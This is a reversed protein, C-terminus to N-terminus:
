LALTEPASTPGHHVTTGCTQSGSDNSTATTSWHRTYCGGQIGRTYQDTTYFTGHPYYSACLKQISPGRHGSQGPEESYSGRECSTGTSYVVPLPPITEQSSFMWAVSM